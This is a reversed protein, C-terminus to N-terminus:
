GIVDIKIVNSHFNKSLFVYKSCDIKLQPSKRYVNMITAFTKLENDDNVGKHKDMFVQKEFKLVRIKAKRILHPNKSIFGVGEKVEYRFGSNGM